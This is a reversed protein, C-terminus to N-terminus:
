QLKLGIPRKFAGATLGRRRAVITFIWVLGGDVSQSQRVSVPPSLSAPRSQRDWHAIGIGRQKSAWSRVLHSWSRLQVNSLGWRGWCDALKNKVEALAREAEAWKGHCVAARASRVVKEVKRMEMNLAVTV